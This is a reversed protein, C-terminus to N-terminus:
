PEVILTAHNMPRSADYITYQGATLSIRANDRWRQSRRTVQAVRQQTENAVLLGASNGSMDEIHLVIAGASAHAERPFIGADYVTFYVMEAPGTQVALLQQPTLNGSEVARWVRAKAAIAVLALACIMAVMTVPRRGADLFSRRLCAM